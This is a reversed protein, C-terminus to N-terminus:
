SEAPDEIGTEVCQLRDIPLSEEWFQQCKCPVGVNRSMLCRGKNEHVQQSEVSKGGPGITKAVQGPAQESGRGGV